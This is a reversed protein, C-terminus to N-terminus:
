EKDSVNARRAKHKTLKRNEMRMGNENSKENRTLKSEEKENKRM